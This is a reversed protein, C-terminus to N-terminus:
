KLVRKIRPELDQAMRSLVDDDIDLNELSTGAMLELFVRRAESVGARYGISKSSQQEQLYLQYDITIEKKFNEM